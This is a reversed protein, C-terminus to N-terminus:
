RWWRMEDKKSLPPCQTLQFILSVLRKRFSFVWMPFMQTRNVM